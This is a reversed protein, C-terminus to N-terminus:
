RKQTDQGSRWQYLEGDLTLLGGILMDDAGGAVVQRLKIEPPCPFVRPLTRAPDGGMIVICRDDAGVPAICGPMTISGGRDRGAPEM